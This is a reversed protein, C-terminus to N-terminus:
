TLPCEEVWRECLGSTKLFKIFYVLPGRATVEAKPDWHVDVRGGSTDLKTDEGPPALASGSEGKPHTARRSTPKPM